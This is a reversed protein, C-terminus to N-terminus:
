GASAKRYWAVTRRLGAYFDVETRYGLAEQAATIDALSHRVDGSRAAAHIPTIATDLIDNLAASLDLLTHRKGCAINFVQGIVDPAAAARLNAQVVNAVYTFDRSQLGDGYITPTEGRLMTNIFLPIVASYQSAPDQRPGFVNFYRLCVTELGYVGAFARCYQEGALKSVAYPSKPAQLMDERKPLTPNDGYISSSSAYVVRRVGADRAAILLNLTGNANANHTTIPDDISRQVSPVAGQHLVYDVGRVARRCTDLDCL